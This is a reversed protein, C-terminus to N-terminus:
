FADHVARIPLSLVRVIYQPVPNVSGHDCNIILMPNANTPTHSPRYIRNGAMNAVDTQVIYGSESTQLNYSFSPFFIKAGNINSTFEYGKAGYENDTDGLYSCTTNGLFETIDSLSPSKWGQGMIVNAPDDEPELVDGLNTYKTYTPVNSDNVFLDTTQTCWKYGNANTSFHEKPEPDGFQFCYGRDKYSTSGVNYKAYLRGSAFGLDVFEHTTAKGLNDSSFDADNIKIIVGM